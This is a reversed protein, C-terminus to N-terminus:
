RRQILNKSFRRKLFLQTQLSGDDSLFNLNNKCLYPTTLLISLHDSSPKVHEM